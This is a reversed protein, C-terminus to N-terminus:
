ASVSDGDSTESADSNRRSKSKLGSHVKAFTQFLSDLSGRRRTHSECDPGHKCPSSSSEGQESRCEDFDFDPDCEELEFHSDRLDPHPFPMYCNKCRYTKQHHNFIRKVIRVHLKRSARYLKPHTFEYHEELDAYDYYPLHCETCELLM